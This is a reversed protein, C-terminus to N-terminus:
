PLPKVALAFYKHAALAINFFEITDTAPDYVGSTSVVPADAFRTDDDQLLAFDRTDSSLFLGGVRFRVDVTGVGDGAGGDKLTVAWTRLLRRAFPAPADESLSFITPVDVGWVLFDGDSLASPASVRVIGPGEASALLDTASLRGIGAMDGAHAHITERGGPQIHESM